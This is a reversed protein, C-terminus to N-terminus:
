PLETTGDEHCIVSGSSKLPIPDDVLLDARRLLSGTGFASGAPLHRRAKRTWRRVADNEGQDHLLSFVQNEAASTRELRQLLGEWALDFHENPTRSPNRTKDVVVAFARANLVRLERLHARYVLYRQEPALNLPRLDGSNRLLYNAKIEARMPIQFAERIRRRFAILSDFSQPWRDADFMLCGLTYTASGGSDPLGTNGSEDVYTVLV